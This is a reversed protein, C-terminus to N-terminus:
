KKDKERFAFEDNYDYKPELKKNDVEEHWEHIYEQHWM